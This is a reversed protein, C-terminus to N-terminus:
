QERWDNTYLCTYQSAGVKILPPYNVKFHKLLFGYQNLLYFHKITILNILERFFLNFQKEKGWNKIIERLERNRFIIMFILWLLFITLAIKVVIEFIKSVIYAVVFVIIILLFISLWNKNFFIKFNNWTPDDLFEKFSKLLFKLWGFLNM